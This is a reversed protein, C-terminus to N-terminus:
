YNTEAYIEYETTNAAFYSLLEDDSFKIRNSPEDLLAYFSNEDIEELMSLYEMEVIDEDNYYSTEQSNPVYTKLPWYVLMFILAFSAALGLAPKLFQIIRVPKETVITKETELKILLRSSFDNFYNEPVSFPTEKKIKSLEPAINKFEDM